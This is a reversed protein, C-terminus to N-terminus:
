QYPAYAYSGGPQPMPPRYGAMVRRERPVNPAPTRMRGPTPPTRLALSDPEFFSAPGMQPPATPANAMSRRNAKRNLAGLPPRKVAPEDDAPLTMEVLSFYYELVEPYRRVSAQWDEDIGQKLAAEAETLQAPHPPANYHYYAHAHLSDIHAAHAVKRRETLQSFYELIFDQAHSRVWTRIDQYIAKMIRDEAQKIDNELMKSECDCALNAPAHCVACDPDMRIIGKRVRGDRSYM